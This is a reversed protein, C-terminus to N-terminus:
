KSKLFKDFWFDRQSASEFTFIITSDFFDLNELYKKNIQFNGLLTETEFNKEYYLILYCIDFMSINSDKLDVVISCDSKKKMDFAIKTKM